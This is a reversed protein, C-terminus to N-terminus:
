DHDLLGLHVRDGNMGQAINDLNGREARKENHDREGSAGKARSAGGERRRAAALGM